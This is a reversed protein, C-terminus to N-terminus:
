KSRRNDEYGSDKFLARGLGYWLGAVIVLGIGGALSFDFFVSGPQDYIDAVVGFIIAGFCVFLALITMIYFYKKFNKSEVLLGTLVGFLGVSLGVILGPMIIYAEPTFWPENM